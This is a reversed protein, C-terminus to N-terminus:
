WSTIDDGSGSEDKGDPGDSWVAVPKRLVKAGVGVRGDGSWDAVIHVPKGWWDIMGREGLDEEALEIFRIREPNEPPPQSAGCLIQFLLAQDGDYSHDVSSSQLPFRGYREHIGHLARVVSVVDRKCESKEGPCGTVTSHFWVAPLVSAILWAAHLVPRDRVKKRSDASFLCGLMRAVFGVIVGGSVALLILKFLEITIELM